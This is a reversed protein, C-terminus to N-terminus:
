RWSTSLNIFFVATCLSGRYAKMTHVPVATGKGKCCFALVVIFAETVNVEGATLIYSYM